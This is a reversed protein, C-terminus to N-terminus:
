TRIIKSSQKNTWQWFHLDQWTQRTAIHTKITGATKRDSKMGRRMTLVWVLILLSSACSAVKERPVQSSAQLSVQHFLILAHSPCKLSLFFTKRKCSLAPLSESEGIITQSALQSMARSNSSKDSQQISMSPSWPGIPRNQQPYSANFSRSLILQKKSNKSTQPFKSDKSALVARGDIPDARCADPFHLAWVLSPIDLQINHQIDFLLPETTLRDKKESHFIKGSALILRCDNSICDYVLSHSEKADVKLTCGISSKYSPMTIHAPVNWALSM